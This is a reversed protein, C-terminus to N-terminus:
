PAKRFDTTDIGRREPAAPSEYLGDIKVGKAETDVSGIPEAHLRTYLGFLAM